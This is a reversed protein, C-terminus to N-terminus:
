SIQCVDMFSEWWCFPVISLSSLSSSPYSSTRFWNTQFQDKALIVVLSKSTLLALGFFDEELKFRLIFLRLLSKPRSTVMSTPWINSMLVTPLKLVKLHWECENKVLQFHCRGEKVFHKWNISNSPGAIKM